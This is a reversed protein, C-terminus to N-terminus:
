YSMQRQSELLQKMEDKSAINIEGLAYDIGGCGASISPLSIHVPNVDCVNTRVTGGGFFHTGLQSNITDPSTTNKVTNYKDFFKEVEFDIYGIGPVNYFGWVM